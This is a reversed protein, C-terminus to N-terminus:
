FTAGRPVHEGARLTIHHNLFVGKPRLLRWAQQFFTAMMARGVHETVGVSVLKDFGEPEDIDRYDRYEVRCRSELGGGRIGDGAFGVQQRSLTIRLAEVGYHQAAHMVLGGWGCGVDLLREGPRLRLKRCVHDLKQEQAKDIDDDPRPFLRLLL